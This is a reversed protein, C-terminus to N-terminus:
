SDNASDVTAADLMALMDRAPWVTETRGKVRCPRDALRAGMSYGTLNVIDLREYIVMHQVDAAMHNMTGQVSCECVTDIILPQLLTDAVELQRHNAGCKLLTNMYSDVFWNNLNAFDLKTLCPAFVPFRTQDHVFMVCNRRQITLLNAHWGSLCDAVNTRRDLGIVPKGVSGDENVPLKVFLKKTVHLHIM